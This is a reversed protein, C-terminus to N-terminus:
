VEFVATLAAGGGGRGTLTVPDSWLGANGGNGWMKAMMFHCGPPITFNAPNPMPPVEIKPCLASASPASLLSALSLAVLSLSARV